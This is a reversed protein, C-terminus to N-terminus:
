RPSDLCLLGEPTPYSSELSPPLSSGPRDRAPFIWASLGEGLPSHHSPPRCPWGQHGHGCPRASRWVAPVQPLLLRAVTHAWLVHGNDGKPTNEQAKVYAKYTTGARQETGQARPASVMHAEGFHSFLDGLGATGEREGPYAVGGGTGLPRQLGSVLLLTSQKVLAILIKNSPNPSPEGSEPPM